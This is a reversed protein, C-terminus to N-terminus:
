LFIRVQYVCQLLEHLAVAVYTGRKYDYYRGFTLNSQVCLILAHLDLVVCIGRKYDNSMWFTDSSEVCWILEYHFLITSDMISCYQLIFMYSSSSIFSFAMMNYAHDLVASWFVYWKNSLYSSFVKKNIFLRSYNFLYIVIALYIFLLVISKESVFVFPWLSVSLM